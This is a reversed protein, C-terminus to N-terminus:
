NNLSDLGVSDITIKKKGWFNKEEKIFITDRIYVITKEAKALEVAKKAVVVETKLNEIKNDVKEVLQIFQKDSKPLTVIAQNFLSDSKVFLSDIVQVEELVEEKGCSAFVLLFLIPLYKM